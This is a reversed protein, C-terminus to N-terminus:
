EELSVWSTGDFYMAGSLKGDAKMQERVSDESGVGGTVARYTVLGQNEEALEVDDALMIPLHGRRRASTLAKKTDHEAFLEDLIIEDADSYIYPHDSWEDSNGLSDLALRAENDSWRAFTPGGSGDQTIQGVVNGDLKLDASWALGERGDMTKVKSLSFGDFSREREAFRAGARAPSPAPLGAEPASHHKEGFRGTNDRVVDAENFDTM